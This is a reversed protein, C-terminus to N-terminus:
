QGNLSGVMKGALILDRKEELTLKKVAPPSAVEAVAETVVEAVAEAWAADEVKREAAAEAPKAAKELRRKRADSDCKKCTSRRGSKMKSDVSFASYPKTTDCRKCHKTQEECGGEIPESVPEPVSEPEPVEPQTPEPESEAVPESVPESVVEVPTGEALMADFEAETIDEVPEEVPEPETIPITKAGGTVILHPKDRVPVPTHATHPHIACTSHHLVCGNAQVTLECGGITWKAPTTPKHPEDVRNLPKGAYEDILDLLATVMEAEGKWATMRWIAAELTDRTIPRGDRRIWLTASTVRGEDVSM